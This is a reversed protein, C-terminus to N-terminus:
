QSELIMKAELILRFLKELYQECLSVVDNDIRDMFFYYNCRVVPTEKMITQKEKADNLKPEFVEKTGDEHILTLSVSETATGTDTVSITTVSHTEPSREKISITRMKVFFKMLEDKDMKIQKKCYWSQFKPNSNFEKKLVFTINRSTNLFADLNFIFVKGNDNRLNEILELHYQAAEWKEEAQM